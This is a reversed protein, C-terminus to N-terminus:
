PLRFPVNRERNFQESLERDIQALPLQKSEGKVTVFHLTQGDVWYALAAWVVGNRAAILYIQSRTAKPEPQRSSESQVSSPQRLGSDEDESRTQQRPPANNVIISPAPTSSGTGVVTVAPGASMTPYAYDSYYPYYSPYSWYPWVYSSYYPYYGAGYYFGAGYYPRYFSNYRYFGGRYGFGRNYGGGWVFGGGGPGRVYGGSGPGRVFGGGGYGHGPSGGHYGGGRMGGGMGGGRMGGGRQASLATAFVLFAILMRM